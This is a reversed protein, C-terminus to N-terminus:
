EKTARRKTPSAAEVAATIEQEIAPTEDFGIETKVSKKEASVAKVPANVYFFTNPLDSVIKWATVEDVEIAGEPGGATWVYGSCGRPENTAIFVM